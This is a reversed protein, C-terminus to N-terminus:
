LKIYETTLEKKYDNYSKEGDPSFARLKILGDYEKNAMEIAEKVTRARYVKDLLPHETKLGLVKFDRYPYKNIDFAFYEVVKNFSEKVESPADFLAEKISYLLEKM